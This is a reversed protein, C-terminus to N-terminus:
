VEAQQTSSADPLNIKNKVM